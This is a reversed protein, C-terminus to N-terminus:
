AAVRKARFEITPVSIRKAKAIRKSDELLKGVRLGIDARVIKEGCNSCVGTPVDEVVILKGRIWFDHNLRREEMHSNCVECEGYDYGNKKKAM